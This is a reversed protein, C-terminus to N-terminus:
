HPVGQVILINDQLQRRSVFASQEVAIIEPLWPKLHNAMVKSIIKHAFYFLIIFQFQSLSQPNPVKPILSIYSRHLEPHIIGSDFFRKLEQFVDGKIGSWHHQFFQGNFEDTRPAKIAGLQFVINEMEEMIIPIVLAKNMHEQVLYPCQDPIPQFDRSGEFTYLSQFFDTTYQKLLSPNRFWEQDNIKLM